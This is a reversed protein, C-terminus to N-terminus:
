RENNIEGQPYIGEPCQVTNIHALLELLNSHNEEEAWDYADKYINYIGENKLEQCRELFIRILNNYQFAIINNTSVIEQENQRAKDYAATFNGMFAHLLGIRIDAFLANGWNGEQFFADRCTRAFELSKPYNAKQFYIESRLELSRGLGYPNPKQANYSLALNILKLGEDLNGDHVITLEALEMTCLYLGGLKELQRYVEISENFTEKARVLDKKDLYIKGMLYKTKATFLDPLDAEIMILCDEMALDNEGRKHHTWAKSWYFKAKEEGKTIKVMALSWELALDLKGMKRLAKGFDYAGRGENEVLRLAVHGGREHLAHFIISLKEESLNPLNHKGTGAGAAMVGTGAYLFVLVLGSFILHASVSQKM